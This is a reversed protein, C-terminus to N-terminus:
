RPRHLYGPNFAIAFDKGKYNIALDERAEGV